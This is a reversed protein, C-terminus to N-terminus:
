RAPGELAIGDPQVTSRASASRATSDRRAERREALLAEEGWANAATVAVIRVNELSAEDARGRHFAEQSRCLTLSPYM